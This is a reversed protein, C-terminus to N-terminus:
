PNSIDITAGLENVTITVHKTDKLCGDDSKAIIDFEYTGGTTLSGTIKHTSTSYTLGSPLAASLAAADVTGDVVAADISIAAPSCVVTSPVGTLTLEPMVDPTFTPAEYCLKINARQGDLTGSVSQGQDTGDNRKYWHTNTASTYRCNRSCGGSTTCGYGRVAVLLARGGTHSFPTSFDLTQWGTNPASYSTNNYVQSAGAIYTAFTTGGALATAPDVDKVWITMRSTSTANTSTIDYAISTITLNNNLETAATPTYIYVDYQNGWYGPIPYYNTNTETGIEFCPAPPGVQVNYKAVVPCYGTPDDYAMTATITASGNAVGTVTGDNSVTAVSTNDSSYSVTGTPSVGDAGEVPMTIAASSGIDIMAADKCFEFGATGTRETCCNICFRTNPRYTGQAGTPPNNIDYNYGDNQQYLQKYVDSGLNTCLFKYSSGDYAGSSDIIAVVLSGEGSYVFPQSFGFWKWGAANFKLSGSYVKTLESSPTWDTTSAFTSTSREGMYITVKTKDDIPGNYANFAIGTIEGACLGDEMDYIIQRIGYNWYNNVPGYTYEQETGTGVEKSTSPSECTFGGTVTVTFSNTTTRACYTVGNSATWQAITATITTTGTSVGTVVGANTVTAISTNASTYSTVTAGTPVTLYGAINLTADEAVSGTTPNFAFTQSNPACIVNITCTASANCWVGNRPISATIIVTGPAKATVVGTNSVEAVTTNNSTWEVTGVGAPSVTASLTATSGSVMDSSPCGNITLTRPTCAPEPYTFCVDDIGVGYGYNDTMRFGIQYNAALNPLDIVKNSWSSHADTTSFLENWAGGNVRYCVAVEDIDGAWSTNIYWFSLTVYSLGSFDMVPTVLYTVNGTSLHTIKANYSGDHASNVSANGTGVIWTSSGESSWGSPMSGGEFGECDENIIPMVADICIDDIGVGYGYNDTYKFAIQCNAALAGAPLTISAETWSGHAATTSFLSQWGGGNVRYYVDLADIDNVWQRNIYWFSFTASTASSLDMMPSILYTSTGSNGHTILANYTGAHPGTNNNYDGVGVRWTGSGSTTWGAPMTGGEFGQCAEPLDPPPPDLVILKYDEAEGYDDSVCPDDPSDEYYYQIIRMRYDGAATNSPVSFSGLWTGIATSTSYAVRESSAFVGDKNWDVWIAHGYEWETSSPVVTCSLTGGAAISAYYSDYYNSYGGFVYTSTNNINTTGGTTYFRSIYDDEPIDFYPICLSQATTTYTFTTKPIFQQRSGGNSSSGYVYYGQYTSQSVGYWYTSQYTGGNAASIQVIISGGTYTFSSGNFNFTHTTASNASYSANTYVTTGGSGLLGTGTYATTTTNSLKITLNKAVWTPSTTSQYLTIATIESGDPLASLQSAPIIYESTFGYDCYYTYLPVYDNTNTGNAVTVQQGWASVGVTMMALLVFVALMRCHTALTKLYSPFCTAARSQGRRASKKEESRSASNLSQMKHESEGNKRVTTESQYSDEM